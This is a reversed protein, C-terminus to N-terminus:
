GKPSASVLRDNDLLSAPLSAKCLAIHSKLRPINPHASRCRHCRLEMKLLSEDDNINAVGHKEIEQILDTSDRFFSTNFSNWHKKNQLRPSDFDQSIVHLHLQRMSPVVHYGLRFMLSADEKLFMRTWKLGASHMTKLLSLHEKRVDSLSDLGQLRSVVLVHKKAKPYMDNLVVYDDSKEMVVNQHKEPNLAIEHLAQAWAGWSRKTVKAHRRNEDVADGLSASSMLNGTNENCPTHGHNDNMVISKDKSAGSTAFVKSKKNRDPNSQAEQKAMQDSDPSSTITTGEVHTSSIASVHRKSDTKSQNELISAFNAFLSSYANRLVKCGEVYDNNLCNPRQPNMNPGVVHIVHTVRERSHLPSNSPLPVVVSSGPSLIDACKKTAIQLSEGAVKFIAANVGGGGPKLRWNAANAIVNCRLNGRTHLQTIDGVFTFFKSSDIHKNASRERVLSLIKSKESLDVLVLRINDFRQLFDSVCDVIIESALKLDFQFDATSISPFALTHVFDMSSDGILSRQSPCKSNSNRLDEKNKELEMSCTSTVSTQISATDHPLNGVPTSDKGSADFDPKDIKKLFKMIGLQVKAEKNKQGFVGASLIDSPGLQSYTKVAEKVDSENQCFTIRSFGETLNPLEKKQLMRNVVMAARGGQLKGEHGTRKVSRSICLQAPLDLVVAHVDVQVKRLRVFDARQEQELNCRDIFVSKGEELAASASTICQSKTGQKGNAVVDQCVRVWPRRAAAMVDDCFTSKGSGPAGVLIVVLSSAGESAGDSGRLDSTHHITPDGPM